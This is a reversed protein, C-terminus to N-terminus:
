ISGELWKNGSDDKQADFDNIIKNLESEPIIGAHKNVENYIVTFKTDDSTVIDIANDLWSFKKKLEKRKDPSAGRDVMFAIFLKSWKCQEDKFAANNKLVTILASTARSNWNTKSQTEAGIIKCLSLVDQLPRLSKNNPEVPSAIATSSKKTTLDTFSVDDIFVHYLVDQMDNCYSLIISIPDDSSAQRLYEFQKVRINGFYKLLQSADNVSKLYFDKYNIILNGKTAPAVPRALDTRNLGENKAVADHIVIYHNKSILYNKAGGAVIDIGGKDAPYDPNPDTFYTKIFTLFPNSAETFGLVSCEQKFADGLGAIKSANKGWVINYYKEWFSDKDGAKKLAAAWDTNEARDKELNARDIEFGDTITGFDDEDLAKAKELFKDQQGILAFLEEIGSSLIDISSNYQDETIKLIKYVDEYIHAAIAYQNTTSTKKDDAKAALAGIDKRFGDVITDVKNLQAVLDKYKTDDDNILGVLEFFFTGLPTKNSAAAKDWEPDLESLLSKINNIYDEAHGKVINIDKVNRIDQLLKTNHQFLQKIIAKKDDNATSASSTNKMVEKAYKCIETSKTIADSHSISENLKFKEALIFKENLIYKM